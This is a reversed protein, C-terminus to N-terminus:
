IKKKGPPSNEKLPILKCSECMEAVIREACPQPIIYGKSAVSQPKDPEPCIEARM